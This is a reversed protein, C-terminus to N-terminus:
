IEAVKCCVVIRQKSFRDAVYGAVGSFILFASAFILQAQGQRDKGIKAAAEAATPTALLLILQKFLNDNFAGLFQTSAMGWFSSDRYLQPLADHAHTDTPDTMPAIIVSVAAFRCPCHSRSQSTVCLRGM